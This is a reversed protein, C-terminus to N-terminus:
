LPPLEDPPPNQPPTEPRAEPRDNAPLRLKAVTRLIEREETSLGALFAEDKLKAEREDESLPRLAGLRRVIAQRRRPEMTQWRPLIEERVRQRQEPTMQQWVRDRRIVDQKEEPSMANWRRLNERIQQQREQPMRRFMPSNLAREQDEPSMERLREFPSQGAGRGREPNPNFAQGGREGRRMQQRQQKGPGRREEKGPAAQQKEQANAFCPALALAAALVIACQFRHDM